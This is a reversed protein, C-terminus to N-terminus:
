DSGCVGGDDSGDSGDNGDVHFPRGAPQAQVYCLPRPCSVLGLVPPYM